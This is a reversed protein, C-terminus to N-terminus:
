ALEVAVLVREGSLEELQCRVIDGPSFEWQEADDDKPQNPVICLADDGLREAEVPRWVATGEDLLRVYIRERLMPAVSSRWRLVGRVADVTILAESQFNEPTLITPRQVLGSLQAMFSVIDDMAGQESVERPDLDLEIEDETFFHCNLTAGGIRLELLASPELTGVFRIRPPPFPAREGNETYVYPVNWAPIADIFRMWDRADTGLVYIDRWSGDWDFSEAVESWRM